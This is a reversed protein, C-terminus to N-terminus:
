NKLSDILHQMAVFPHYIIMRPGAYAMVKKIMVKYKESYCHIPCSGCFTKVDKRPCNIVRHSSYALLDLSQDKSMLDQHQKQYLKIMIELVKIEKQDQKSINELM